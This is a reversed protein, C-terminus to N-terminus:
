SSLRRPAPNEGCHWWAPVRPPPNSHTDLHGTIGERAAQAWDRLWGTPEVAGPPLPLFATRVRPEGVRADNPKSLVPAQAPVPAPDATLAGAGALVQALFFSLTALAIRNIPNMRAHNM